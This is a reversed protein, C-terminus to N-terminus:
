VCVCVCLYVCVCVCVCYIVEKRTVIWQWTRTSTFILLESPTFPFKCYLYIFHSWNTCQPLPFKNHTSHFSFFFDKRGQIDLTRTCCIFLPIQLIFYVCPPRNTYQPLLSNTHTSDFFNIGYMCVYMCVYICVYMCVSEGEVLSCM